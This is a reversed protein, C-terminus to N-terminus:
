VCLALPVHLTSWLNVCVCLYACICLNMQVGVKQRLIQTERCKWSYVFIAPKEPAQSPSFIFMLAGFLMM